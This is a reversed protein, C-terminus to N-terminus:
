GYVERARMELLAKVQAIFEDKRDQMMAKDWHRTALPHRDKSYNIMAGTPHKQVGPRSFWGVIQGNQIIPINPGYVIGEYMYHAYPSKYRVYKPTIEVTQALTGDGFPVYPDCMKYFAQHIRLMTTDDLLGDLKKKVKNSDIKIDIKNVTVM